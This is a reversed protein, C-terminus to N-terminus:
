GGQIELVTVSVDNGITVTQTPRCTLHAHDM